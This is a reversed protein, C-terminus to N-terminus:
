FLMKAFALLTFITEATVYKDAVHDVHPCTGNLICELVKNYIQEVIVGDETIYNVHEHVFICPCLCYLYATSYWVTKFKFRTGYYELNQMYQNIALKRFIDTLIEKVLCGPGPAFLVVSFQIYNFPTLSPPTKVPRVHWKTTKKMSQDESPACAVKKPKTMLRDMQALAHCFLYFWRQTWRFVWILRPMWSSQDSDESHAKNTALSGFRRLRLQACLWKTPKTMSRSMKHWTSWKKLKTTNNKHFNRYAFM